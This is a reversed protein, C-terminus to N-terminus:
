SNRLYDEFCWGKSYIEVAAEVGVFRYHWSEYTYGTTSTKDAPYRLIFGFRWANEKLWACAETREFDELKAMTSTFFDVCLGTQHESYGPRATDSDVKKVAEEYSLGAAIYEGLYKDYLSKQYSYSRYASTVFIDTVGDAAMERFMAELAMAASARLELKRKTPVTLTVLDSPLYDASLPNDKNTLLLYSPDQPRMHSLYASVDTKYTLDLSTSAGASTYVTRNGASIMVTEYIPNLVSGGALTNRTVNVTNTETDVNVTIGALIDDAFYLDVWLRDKGDYIAPCAMEYRSGNVLAIKSGITFIVYTSGDAVAYKPSDHSGTRTLGCLDAVQTLNIKMCKGNDTVFKYTEREKIPELAGYYFTFRGKNIRSNKVCSSVGVTIGTLLLAAVLLLSVLTLIRHSQAFRELKEGRTPPPPAVTSERHGALQKQRARYLAEQGQNMGVPSSTTSRKKKPFVINYDRLRRRLKDWLRGLDRAIRRKYRLLPASFGSEGAKEQPSSPKQEQLRFRKGCQVCEAYSRDSSRRVRGGCSPCPRDFYMESM